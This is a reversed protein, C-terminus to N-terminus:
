RRKKGKMPMAQRRAENAENSRKIEADREEQIATKMIERDLGAYAEVEAQTPLEFPKKEALLQRVHDLEKSTHVTGGSNLDLYWQLVEERTQLMNVHWRFRVDTFSLKDTFDRFHNGGFVPVENNLFGIAADIRQKGDVLVYYGQAGWRLGVRGFHHGACNLYIDRGSLGGKLMYEVYRTKQELTWVYGRQFDPNVDLGYNKVENAVHRPLYVWAHDVSYGTFKTFQPIDAFRM